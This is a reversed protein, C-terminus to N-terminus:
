KARCYVRQMDRVNVHTRYNSLGLTRSMKGLMNKAKQSRLIVGVNSLLLDLTLTRGVLDIRFVEFGNRTMLESLTKTTFFFIHGNCNSLSRERRGLVKFMLSDFRPTEVVLVGGKKMLSRIERLNQGPDPMHEIVHLMVVADFNDKPLEPNPLIGEIVKLGFNKRAFEAPGDAPELGTVDWGAARIKDLFYGAYSGIELLKGRQPFLSNLVSLAKLNDPLQVQQKQAYQSDPDFAWGNALMTDADIEEQPNAYMLDCKKCRVIRHVQAFGKPFMVTYDDAGCLNCNVQAM